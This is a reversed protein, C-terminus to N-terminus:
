PDRRRLARIRLAHVVAATSARADTIAHGRDEADGREVVVRGRRQDDVARDDGRRLFLAEGALLVVGRKGCCAMSYQRRSAPM